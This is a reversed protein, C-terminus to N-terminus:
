HSHPTHEAIHYLDDPHYGYEAALRLAHGEDVVNNAPFLCLSRLPGDVANDKPNYFWLYFSHSKPKFINEINM